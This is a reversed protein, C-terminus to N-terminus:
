SASRSLRRATKTAALTSPMRATERPAHGFQKGFARTLTEPSAYRLASATASVSAGTTLMERALDLRAERAFRGVSVGHRAVFVRKLTAESVAFEEALRRLTRDPAPDERVSAAVREALADHATDPAAANTANLGLSLCELAAGYARTRAGSALLDAHLLREAAIRLAIPAVAHAMGGEALMSQARVALAEDVGALRVLEEASFALAVTRFRAQRPATVCWTAPTPCGVIEGQGPLLSGSRGAGGIERSESAGDLRVELVLGPVGAIEGRYAPQGVLDARMLRVGPGLPTSEVRGRGLTPPPADLRVRVGGDIREVQDSRLPARSQPSLTM